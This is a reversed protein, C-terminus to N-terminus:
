AQQSREGEPEKDLPEPLRGVVRGDRVITILSFGEALSPPEFRDRMKRMAGEPVVRSRAANRRLCVDFPEDFWIAEVRCEILEALHLYPSREWRSLHTADLYTVPQRLDLRKRLLWRLTAFVVRHNTQNEESDFLLARISDSSLPQVGLSAFWTSKGSAPLGVALM